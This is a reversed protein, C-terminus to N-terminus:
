ASLFENLKKAFNRKEDIDVKIKNNDNFKIKGNTVQMTDSKGDWNKTIPFGKEELEPNWTPDVKIWRNGIKVKLLNHSCITSSNFIKLIKKPIPLDKWDFIVRIDKVEYSEKSLLKKLLFSKHRCDGFKLNKGIKEKKFECVKYSINQVKEFIQILKKDM